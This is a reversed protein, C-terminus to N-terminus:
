NNSTSPRYDNAVARPKLIRVLTLFTFGIFGGSLDIVWDFAAAGLISAQFLSVGQSAAQFTEQLVGAILIFFALQLLGKRTSPLQFVLMLLIGLVAYIALHMLIHVWEPGFLSDFVQRYTNSFQRLWIAPFVIGILWICLILRSRMLINYKVTRYLWRGSLAVGPTIFHCHKPPNYPL